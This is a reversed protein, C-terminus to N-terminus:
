RQSKHFMAVAPGRLVVLVSRQVVVETSMSKEGGVRGDMWNVRSREGGMWGILWGVFKM